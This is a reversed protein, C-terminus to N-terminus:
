IKKYFLMRIISGYLKILYYMKRSLCISKSYQVFVMTNEVLKFIYLTLSFVSSDHFQGFPVFNSVIRCKSTECLFNNVDSFVLKKVNYFNVRYRTHLSNFSIFLLTYVLRKSYRDDLLKIKKKCPM